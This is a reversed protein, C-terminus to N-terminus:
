ERRSTHRRFTGLAPDGVNEIVDGPSFFRKKSQPYRKKAKPTANKQQYFRLFVDKEL